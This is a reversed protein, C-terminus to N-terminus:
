LKGTKHLQYIFDAVDRRSVLQNPDPMPGEYLDYDAVYKAYGSYWEDTEFGEFSVGAPMVEDLNRLLLAWFEVLVFYRDPKFLGEDEGGLYGTIMGTQKGRCIYQYLKNEKSVDPFPNEGGCYDEGEDFLQFARLSVKAMQDRRMFDEPGFAGNDYGTMAGIMTVYEIAECDPDDKLMDIYDGCDEPSSEAPEEKADEEQNEPVSESGTDCDSGVCGPIDRAGGAPNGGGDSDGPPTPPLPAVEITIQYDEVEGDTAAGGPTSTTIAGDTTLRIRAYSTGAAIDGPIATWELTATGGTTGDAVAISTAEDAEFTGNLDFDIWGFLTAPSGTNNTVTVDISYTTDDDDLPDFATIGDEDDPTAGNTDDGDANAGPQGDAEDDIAAGLQINADITHEPGNSAILTAYSDPADGYDYTALISNEFAGVECDVMGPRPYNRQDVLSITAFEALVNAGFPTATTDVVSGGPGYNASNFTDSCTATPIIEWVNTSAATAEHTQAPTTPTGPGDNDALAQLDAAVPSASTGVNDGPDATFFAACGNNVGIVNYGGSTITPTAFTFCDDNDGTTNNEALITGILHVSTDNNNLFIGASRTQNTVTNNTITDHIFYVYVDGVLHVGGGQAGAHNGSITSNIFVASGPGQNIGGGSSDTTNGSIESGSIYASSSGSFIGGGGDPTSNNIIRSDVIILESNAQIDTFVGGGQAFNSDNLDTENNSITSNRIELLVGDSFIGGGSQTATTNQDIVSNNITVSANTGAYIGGGRASFVHGSVVQINNLDATSNDGIYLHGGSAASANIMIVDNMIIDSGAQSYVSGGEGQNYGYLFSADGSGNQITVGSLDFFTGAGSFEEGLFFAQTESNGDIILDSSGPGTITVDNELILPHAVGAGADWTMTYTQPFSGSFQIEDAVGYTGVATCDGVLDAGTNIAQVAERLNCTGSVNGTEPGDTYEDVTLTAASVPLIVLFSLAVAAILMYFHRKQALKM